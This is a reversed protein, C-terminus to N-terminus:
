LNMRSASGEMRMEMRSASGEMRSHFFLASYPRIKAQPENEIGVGGNKIGNVEARLGKVHWSHDLISPDADLISVM